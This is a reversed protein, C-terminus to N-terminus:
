WKTYKSLYDYAENVQVMIQTNLDHRYSDRTNVDTHYRKALERRTRQLDRKTYSYSLNLVELAQKKSKIPKFLKEVESNSQQDYPLQKMEQLKNNQELLNELLKQVTQEKENLQTQLAKIQKTQEKKKKKSQKTDIVELQDTLTLQDDLFIRIGWTGSEHMVPDIEFSPYTNHSSSKTRFAMEYNDIISGSGDYVEIRYQYKKMELNFWRTYYVINKSSLNISTIKDAPEKLSDLRTTFCGNGQINLRKTM